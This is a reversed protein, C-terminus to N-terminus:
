GQRRADAADEVKAGNPNILECAGIVAVLDSVEVDNIFRAVWETGAWGQTNCGILSGCLNYPM